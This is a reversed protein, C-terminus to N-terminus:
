EGLSTCVRCAICNVPLKLPILQLIFVWWTSNVVLSNTRHTCPPDSLIWIKCKMKLEGSVTTTQTLDRRVNSRRHASVECCGQPESVKLLLSQVGPFNNWHMKNIMQDLKEENDVRNLDFRDMVKELLRMAMVFENDYDSELMSVSTVFMEAFLDSAEIVQHLPTCYLRACLTSINCAYFFSWHVGVGM